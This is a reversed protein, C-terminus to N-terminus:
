DGPRWVYMGHKYGGRALAARTVADPMGTQPVELAAQRARWVDFDQWTALDFGEYGADLLAQMLADGPDGPGRCACVNRHGEIGIWTAGDQGPAFRALVRRDPVIRGDVMVAPVQRQIGLERTLTDCAHVFASLEREDIAGGPGQECEIGLSYGNVNGAQWTYDRLPDNQQVIFGLSGIFFDWSVDRPSTTQYRALRCAHSDTAGQIVPPDHPEGTETHATINQPPHRRPTKDTVYDVCGGDTWNIVIGGPVPVRNGGLIMYGWSPLRGGLRALTTLRHDIAPSFAM